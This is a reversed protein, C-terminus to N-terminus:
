TELGYQALTAARDLNGARERSTIALELVRENPAHGDASEFYEAAEVYNGTKYAERGRSFDGEAAKVDEVSPSEAAQAVSVPLGMCTALALACTVIPRRMLRPGGQRGSLVCNPRGIGEAFESKR